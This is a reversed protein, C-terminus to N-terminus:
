IDVNMPNEESGGVESAGAIESEAQQKMEEMLEPSIAPLEALNKVGFSRLFQETTGFLIPRGPADLRGIEEILDYEILKNMAHDCSVGRIKEIEGRTIPQKYAIISLTELVSDTLVFKQPNKVIKVLYEYASQKTCLQVAGDLETLEIGRNSAEYDKALAAVVEGVESETIELVEALKEISVSTGMMFLIAEMGSKLKDMDQFAESPVQETSNNETNTNEINHDIDEIEVKETEINEVEINNEIKNEDQM